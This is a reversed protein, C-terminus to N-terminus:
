TPPTLKLTKHEIHRVSGRVFVRRPDGRLMLVEEAVHPNGRTVPKGGRRVVSGDYCSGIPLKKEILHSRCNLVELEKKSAEVFFWEGQRVISEAQKGRKKYNKGKGVVTKGAVAKPKLLEHASKVSTAGGPLQSIFPHGREDTGCLLHRKALSTRRRVSVRKGPLDRIKVDGPQMTDVPIEAVFERGLEQVSILLQNMAKDYSQVQVDNGEGVQLFFSSGRIDMAFIEDTRAWERLSLGVKDFQDILSNM